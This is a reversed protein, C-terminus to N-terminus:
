AKLRVVNIVTMNQSAKTFHKHILPAWDSKEVNTLSKSIQTDWSLENKKYGMAFKVAIFCEM